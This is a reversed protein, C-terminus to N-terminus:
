GEFGLLEGRSGLKAILEGNRKEEESAHGYRHQSM